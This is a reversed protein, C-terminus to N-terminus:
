QSSEESVLQQFVPNDRLSAFEAETAVKKPNAFGENLAARLYNLACDTYGSRACGLAMYYNMAGREQVSSPNEVKPNGNHDAFIQPDIAIAKQYYEWGKNYKKEALLNTGLNKYIPANRPDIKIAKRYLRDAQGYEKMSAYITGLNNLVRPNRPELKLSEKYCRMADKANYMMQYAIGMKNWITATMEPATSYAAIAAQYRLRAVLSDGAQEANPQKAGSTATPATPATLSGPEVLSKEPSQGALVLPVGVTAVFVAPVFLTWRTGKSGFM